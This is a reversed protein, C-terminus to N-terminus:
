FLPYIWGIGFGRSHAGKCADGVFCVGSTCITSSVRSTIRHELVVDFWSMGWLAPGADSVLASETTPGMSPKPYAVLLRMSVEGARPCHGSDVGFRPGGILLIRGESVPDSAQKILGRTPSSCELILACFRAHDRIEPVVESLGITDM